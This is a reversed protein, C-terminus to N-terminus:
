PSGLFNAQKFYEQLEFKDLFEDLKIFDIEDESIKLINKIDSLHKASGGERFYELKKVIVYEIAAM